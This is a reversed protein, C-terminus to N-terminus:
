WKGIPCESAALKIKVKVFCGCKKCQMTPRFLKDCGNCIALREEVMIEPALLDAAAVIAKNILNGPDM